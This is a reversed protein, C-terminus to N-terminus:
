RLWGSLIGVVAVFVTIALLAHGAATLCADLIVLFREYRDLLRESRSQRVLLRIERDDM